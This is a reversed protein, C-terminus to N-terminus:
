QKMEQFQGSQKQVRKVIHKANFTIIVRAQRHQGFTGAVGYTLGSLMALKGSNGTQYTFIETGEGNDDDGNPEGLLSIVQDRTTVGTKIKGVQDLLRAKKKRPTPKPEDQADSDKDKESKAQYCAVLEKNAKANDPDLVLAKKLVKIAADYRQKEYLVEGKAILKGAAQEDDGLLPVALCATLACLIAISRFKNMM